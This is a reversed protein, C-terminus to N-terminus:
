EDWHGRQRDYDSRWHCGRRHRHHCNKRCQGKTIRVSTGNTALYLNGTGTDEIFSHSGSHYIQLDSGAGFQAKDNDGFNINNGNTNLDSTLNTISINELVDQEIANNLEERSIKYTVAGSTDVVVFYDDAATNAGTISVLESIKKDAM